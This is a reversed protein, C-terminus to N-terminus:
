PKLLTLSQVVSKYAELEEPTAESKETNMSVSLLVPKKAGPNMYTVYEYFEGPVYFVKAFCQYNPNTVLLDKFRVGRYRARYDRMDAELDANTDEDVKDDVRIRIM